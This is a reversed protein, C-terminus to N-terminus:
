LLGIRVRSWSKSEAMAPVKSSILETRGISSTLLDFSTPEQPLWRAKSKGEQARLKGGKGKGKGGKYGTTQIVFSNDANL